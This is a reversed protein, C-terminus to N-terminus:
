EEIELEYENTDVVDGVLEMQLNIEENHNIIEMAEADTFIQAGEIGPEMAYEDKHGKDKLYLNNEDKLFFQNLDNENFEMRKTKMTKM